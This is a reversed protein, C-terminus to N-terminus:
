LIYAVFLLKALKIKSQGRVHGHRAESPRRRGRVAVLRYHAPGQAEVSKFRGLQFKKSKKRRTM